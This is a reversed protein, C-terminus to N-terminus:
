AAIAVEASLQALYAPRPSRLYALVAEETPSCPLLTKWTALHEPRHFDGTALAALRERAVWEFLENRNFLEFRHVLERTHPQAAFMCTRRRDLEGPPSPHAAVLASGAAAAAELAPELGGDVGVFTRLGVALAHGAARPDVDNYSLELGPLVLLGYQRRARAAERELEELYAGYTAATVYRCGELWPDNARVVHDTVALVDFGNRGYLDILGAITLAGDSWTTHAHLECLLPRTKMAKLKARGGGAGRWSVTLM